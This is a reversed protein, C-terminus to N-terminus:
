RINLTCALGGFDILGDSKSQGTGLSLHHPQHSDGRLHTGWVKWAHSETAENNGGCLICRRKRDQLNSSFRAPNGVGRPSGDGCAPITRADLLSSEAWSWIEFVKGALKGNLDELKLNALQGSKKGELQRRGVNKEPSRNTLRKYVTPLEM